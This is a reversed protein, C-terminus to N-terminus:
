EQRLASAPNARRALRSAVGISLVFTLALVTALALVWVAPVSPSAVVGLRSAFDTYAARGALLGIPIGLVVALLALPAAQWVTVRGLEPRTLGLQQLVALERRRTKLQSWLSHISILLVVACSVGVGAWLLPLVEDIQIVEAPMADRYWTGPLGFSADPVGAPYTSLLAEAAEPSSVRFASWEATNGLNQNTQSLESGPEGLIAERGAETVFVGTGLRAQTSGLQTIVPFTALGTIQMPVSRAEGAEVTVTVDIIDGVSAGIADATDPGLVIEDGTSAPRGELMTPRAEGEVDAVAYGPVTQKGDLVFGLTTFGAVAEVGEVEALEGALLDPPQDGYPTVAMLDWPVGYRAPDTTLAQASTVVALVAAALAVSAAAGGISGWARRRQARDVGFCLALGASATV